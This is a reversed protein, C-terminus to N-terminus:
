ENIKQVASLRPTYYNCIFRGIEVEVVVRDELSVVDKWKRRTKPVNVSEPWVTNVSEGAPVIAVVLGRKKELSGKVWYNWEVTDGIRVM